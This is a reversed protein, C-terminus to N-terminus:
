WYWLNVFGFQYSSYISKTYMPLFKPVYKFHIFYLGYSFENYTISRCCFFLFRFFISPFVEISIQVIIQPQVVMQNIINMLVFVIMSFACTRLIRNTSVCCLICIELNKGSPFLKKARIRFLGYKKRNKMKQKKLKCEFWIKIIKM